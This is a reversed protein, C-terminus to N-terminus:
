CASSEACAVSSCNFLCAPQLGTYTSRLRRYDTCTSHLGFGGSRAQGVPVSAAAAAWSQCSQTCFGFSRDPSEVMCGSCHQLAGPLTPTPSTVRRGDPLIAKMRPNVTDPRLVHRWCQRAERMMGRGFLEGGIGFSNAASLQSGPKIGIGGVRLAADACPNYHDLMPPKSCAAPILLVSLLM